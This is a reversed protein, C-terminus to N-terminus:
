TEYATCGKKYSIEGSKIVDIIKSYRACSIKLQLPKKVYCYMLNEKIRIIKNENPITNYNCQKKDYNLIISKMCMDLNDLYPSKKYIFNCFYLGTTTTMCKSLTNATIVKIQYGRNLIYQQFSNLIITKNDNAEHPIPISEILSYSPKKSIIPLKLNIEINTKNIKKDIAGLEILKTLDIPPLSFKPQMSINKSEIMISFNEKELIKFFEKKIDGFLAAKIRKTERDHRMVSSIALKYIDNFEKEKKSKRVGEKLENIRVRNLVLKKKKEKAKFLSYIVGLAASIFRKERSVRFDSIISIDQKIRKEAEKAHKLRYVNLCNINDPEDKCKQELLATCNSIIRANKYYEDLDINFEITWEKEHFYLDGRKIMFLEPKHHLTM